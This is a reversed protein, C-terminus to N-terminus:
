PTTHLMRILKDKYHEFFCILSWNYNLNNDYIANDNEFEDDDDDSILTV